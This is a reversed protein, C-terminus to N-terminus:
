TRTMMVADFRRDALDDPTIWWQLAGGGFHHGLAPNDPLELLLLHTAALDAEGSAPALLRAPPPAIVGEPTSIALAHRWAVRATIEDPLKAAEAPSAHLTTEIAAEVAEPMVREALARHTSLWDWFAKRVPPGLPALAPNNLAHDFWAQAEERVTKLQAAREAEDLGPYPDHLVTRQARDAEHVLAAAAIQVSLWDQPYGYWAPEFGQGDAGQFDEPGLAPAIPDPGQVELLARATEARHPWGPAESEPVAIPRPAFPWRPLVQTGNAPTLAWPWVLAAEDGYAMALGEPVDLAHWATGAYGVAHFVRFAEGPGWDLDLFVALAGETPLLGLGAEPPVDALDLQLLFHLPKGTAPNIPWEAAGPLVPSGGFWSRASSGGAPARHPPFHQRLVIAQRAAAVIPAPLPPAPLPAEPEPADLAEAAHDDAAPLANAAEAEALSAASILRSRGVKQPPLEPEPAAEAADGAAKRRKAQRAKRPKPERLARQRLWYWILALLGLASIIFIAFIAILAQM